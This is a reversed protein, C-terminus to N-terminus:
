VDPLRLLAFAAAYGIWADRNAERGTLEPEQLVQLRHAVSSWSTTTV